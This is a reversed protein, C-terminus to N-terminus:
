RLWLLKAKKAYRSDISQEAGRGRLRHSHLHRDSLPHLGMRVHRVDGSDFRHRHHPTSILFSLVAGRSAGEKQIAAALPIVGCSCVPLPIGFLTAKMVSAVNDRGLHRQIFDGPVLEHLIGAFFLGFLIYPAMAATLEWLAVGFTEIFEM